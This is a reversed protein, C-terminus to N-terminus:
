IQLLMDAPIHVDSMGSTASGSCSGRNETSSPTHAHWQVSRASLQDFLRCHQAPVAGPLGAGKCSSRGICGPLGPEAGEDSLLGRGWIGRTDPAEAAAVLGSWFDRCDLGASSDWCDWCGGTLMAELRGGGVRRDIGVVEAWCHM